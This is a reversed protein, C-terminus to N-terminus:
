CLPEATTRINQKDAMGRPSMYVPPYALIDRNNNVNMHNYIKKKSTKKFLLQFRFNEGRALEKAERGM